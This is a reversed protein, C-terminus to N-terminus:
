FIYKQSVINLIAPFDLVMNIIFECHLWFDLFAQQTSYQHYLLEILDIMSLPTSVFYIIFAGESAKIGPSISRLKEGLLREFRIDHLKDSSSIGM